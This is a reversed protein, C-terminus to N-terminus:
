EATAPASSRDVRHLDGFKAHLYDRYADIRLLAGSAREILADVGHRHVNDRLWGRLVGCRGSATESAIEPFSPLEASNSLANCCRCRYLM